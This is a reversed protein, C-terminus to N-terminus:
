NWRINDLLYVVVSTHSWRASVELISETENVDVYSELYPDAGIKLLYKVIDLHGHACAM